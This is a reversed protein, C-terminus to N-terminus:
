NAVVLSQGFHTVKKNVNPLTSWNDLLSIQAVGDMSEQCFSSCTGGNKSEKYPVVYTKGCGPRICVKPGSGAISSLVAGAKTAKM